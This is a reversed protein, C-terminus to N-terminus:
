QFYYYEGDVLCSSCMSHQGNHYDFSVEFHSEEERKIIGSLTPSTGLVNYTGIHYHNYHQNTSGINNSMSVEHALAPSFNIISDSFSHLYDKPDTPASFFPEILNSSM